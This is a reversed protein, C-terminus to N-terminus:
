AARPLTAGASEAAPKDILILPYAGFRGFARPFADEARYLLRFAARGLLWPHFYCKTLAATVSRWSRIEYAFPWDQDVFWRYPHAHFHLRPRKPPSATPRVAHFLKRGLRLPFQLIRAPLMAARIWRMKWVYVVAARGGAQLVRAVERFAQSQEDAPVHYITHLSIAADVAGDQFPLNTIDGLVYIGRDGLNRRAAQLAAYSLDVCIRAEYDESYTVYEPYQVPGSAVDLLYRGRPPLHQKVRLHCARLYDTSVDRLDEFLAADAFVGVKDQVWGVEDYFDQVAHKEQRLAEASPESAPQRQLVIALTPLLLVIGERVGYALQGDSTRYGAQLEGRVPSGDPHQVEGRGIRENIQELEAVALPRLRGHTIPCRLIQAPCPVPSTATASNVSM